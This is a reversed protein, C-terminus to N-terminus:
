QPPVIADEMLSLAAQVTQTRVQQRDGGFHYGFSSIKGQWYLGIYVLGVPKQPTGGGPGAIGTISIALDAGSLAQLGQVMAEATQNSVAGHAALTEWPVQLLSNKAENSYTVLGYGFCESSGAVSTIAAALSGGTCSEATALWLGRERLLHVMAEVKM